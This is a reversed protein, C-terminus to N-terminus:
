VRKKGTLILLLALSLSGAGLLAWMMIPTADGTKPPEHKQENTISLTYEVVEPSNGEYKLEVTHVTEDLVYGDAANTEVVYYKINETWAGTTLM